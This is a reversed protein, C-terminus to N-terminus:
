TLLRIVFSTISGQLLVNICEPLRFFTMYSMITSDINNWASNILESIQFNALLLQAVDWAIGAFLIKTEIAAITLYYTIKVFVAHFFASLSTSMYDYFNNFIEILFEM